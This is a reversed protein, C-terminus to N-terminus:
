GCPYSRPSTQNMRFEGVATGRCKYVAVGLGSAVTRGNRQISVPLAVTEFDCVRERIAVVQHTTTQHEMVANIYCASTSVDAIAPVGAVAGAAAVFGVVLATRVILGKARWSKSKM